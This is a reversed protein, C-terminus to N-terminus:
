RIIEFIDEILFNIRDLRDEIEDFFQELDIKPQLDNKKLLIEWSKQENLEELSVPLNELLEFGAYHTRVILNALNILMVLPPNKTASNISHHQLLVEAIEENLEWKQALGAGIDCHTIGIVAEEAEFFTVKKEKIYNIIKLFDIPYNRNLVLKGLDHFLGAIYIKGPDAVEIKGGIFRSIYGCGFSHKWFSQLDDADKAEFLPDILALLLSLELVKAPGPDQLAQRLSNVPQPLNFFRTNLLVIVLEAFDPYKKMIEKVASADTRDAQLAALIDVAKPSLAPFSDVLRSCDMKGSKSPHAFLNENLKKM